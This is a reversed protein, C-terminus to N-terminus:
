RGGGGHRVRELFQRQMRELDGDDIDENLVRAEREILQGTDVREEGAIGLHPLDYIHIRARAYVCVCVCVRVCVCVCV